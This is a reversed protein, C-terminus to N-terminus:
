KVAHLIEALIVELGSLDLVLLVGPVKMLTQAM